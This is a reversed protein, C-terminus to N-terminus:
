RPAAHGIDDVTYCAEEQPGKRQAPAAASRPRAAPRSVEAYLRQVRKAIAEWSNERAYCLANEV